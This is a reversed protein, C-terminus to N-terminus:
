LSWYNVKWFLFSLGFVFLLSFFPLRPPSRCISQLESSHGRLASQVTEGICHWGGTQNNVWGQKHKYHKETRRHLMHNWPQKDVTYLLITGRKLGTHSDEPHNSLTKLADWLSPHSGLVPTSPSLCGGCLRGLKERKRGWAWGWRRTSVEM